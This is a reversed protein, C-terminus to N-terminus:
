VGVMAGVLFFYFIAMWRGIKVFLNVCLYSGLLLFFTSIQVALCMYIAYELNVMECSRPGMLKILFSAVAAILSGFLAVKRFTDTGKVHIERTTEHSDHDM